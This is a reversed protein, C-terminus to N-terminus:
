KDKVEEFIKNAEFLSKKGEKTIIYFKYDRDSPNICKILKKDQLEKLTRSTHSKYMNTQKEIQASIMKGKSLANLVNIRNKSRMIFALVNSNSMILCVFVM